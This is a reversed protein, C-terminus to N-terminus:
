RTNSEDSNEQSAVFLDPQKEFNNGWSGERCAPCIEPPTTTDPDFTKSYDCLTCHWSWVVLIM